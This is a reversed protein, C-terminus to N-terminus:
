AFIGHDIQELMERVVAAGLEDKVLDLPRQSSLSTNPRTLWAEAREADGFVRTALTSIDLLRVLAERGPGGVASAMETSFVRLRQEAKSLVGNDAGGHRRLEKLEELVEALPAANM